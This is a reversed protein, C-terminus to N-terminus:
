TAPGRPWLFRRNFMVGTIVAVSMVCLWLHLGPLSPLAAPDPNQLLASALAAALLLGGFVCFSRQRLVRGWVCYGAGAGALWTAQAYQSLGALALCLTALGCAGVVVPWLAGATFAVAVGSGELMKMVRRRNIRMALGGLGILIATYAAARATGWPRVLVAGYAPMVALVGLLAWSLLDYGGAPLSPDKHLLCTGM